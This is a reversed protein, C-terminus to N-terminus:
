YIIIIIVTKFDSPINKISKIIATEIDYSKIRDLVQHDTFIINFSLM